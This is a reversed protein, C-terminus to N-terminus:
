VSEVGVLVLENLKLKLVVCGVCLAVGVTVARSVCSLLVVIVASEVGIEGWEGLM